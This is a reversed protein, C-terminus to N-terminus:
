KGEIYPLAEFYEILEDESWGGLVEGTDPGCFIIPLGLEKDLIAMQYPLLNNKKKRSANLEVTYKGFDHVLYGRLPKGFISSLAMVCNYYLSSILEKM